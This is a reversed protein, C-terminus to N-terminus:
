GLMSVLEALLASKDPLNGTKGEELIMIINDREKRSLNKLSEEIVTYCELATAYDGNNFARAFDSIYISYDLGSQWCSSVLMAITPNKYNGKIEHIIEERAASEKIDNMFECIKDKIIQDETNNYTETLLGIAGTFPDENRLRAIADMVINPNASKLRHSLESLKKDSKKMFLYQKM